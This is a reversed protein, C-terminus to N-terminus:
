PCMPLHALQEDRLAPADFGPQEAAAVGALKDSSTDRTATDPGHHLRKVGVRSIRDRVGFGDLVCKLLGANGEFLHVVAVVDGRPRDVLANDVAAV